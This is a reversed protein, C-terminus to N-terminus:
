SPTEQREWVYTARDAQRQITVPRYGNALLWEAARRFQERWAQASIRDRQILTSFDPPVDTAAARDTTFGDLDLVPAGDDALALVRQHPIDVPHNRATPSEATSWRAVFRDTEIGQNVLDKEDTGYANRKYEVVEAGLKCLNFYANRAVLPDFTWVIHSYGLEQALRRQTQKLLAGIGKHQYGPLVATEHSWLVTEGRYLAPFSFLFGVPFDEEYALLVVGGYAAHVVMQATSCAADTGWVAAALRRCQECGELTTVQEIRIAMEAEEQQVKRSDVV